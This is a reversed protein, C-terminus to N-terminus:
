ISFIMINPFNGYLYLLNECIVISNTIKCFKPFMPNIFQNESCLGNELDWIKFKFNPTEHGSIFILANPNLFVVDFFERELFKLTNVCIGKKWDWLKIIYDKSCSLLTGGNMLIISIDSDHGVLKVPKEKNSCHKENNAVILSDEEASVDYDFILIENKIALAFHKGDLGVVIARPYKVRSVLRRWVCKKKVLDIVRIYGSSDRGLLVMPELETLFDWRLPYAGKIWTVDNHTGNFHNWISFSNSTYSAILQGNCSIIPSRLRKRLSNDKLFALRKIPKLSSRDYVLIYEDSKSDIIAFKTDHDFLVLYEINTKTSLYFNTQKKIEYPSKISSQSSTIKFETEYENDLTLSKFPSLSLM